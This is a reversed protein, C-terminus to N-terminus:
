EPRDAPEIEVMATMNWRLREDHEVPRILVAYTMDGQKEEGFPKVSVVEGSLELEPIADFTVSVAAGEPFNQLGIGIALALAGTLIGTDPNNALAGFAVGVAM